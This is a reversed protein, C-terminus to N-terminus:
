RFCIGSYQVRTSDSLIFVSKGYIDTKIYTGLIFWDYINLIGLLWHFSSNNAFWYILRMIVILILYSIYLFSFFIYM